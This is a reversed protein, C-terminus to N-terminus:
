LVIGVDCNVNQSTFLVSLPHLIGDMMIHGQNLHVGHRVADQDMWGSPWLEDM